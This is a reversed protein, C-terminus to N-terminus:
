KVQLMFKLMNLNSVSLGFSGQRRKVSHRYYTIPSLSIFYSNISSSVPVYPSIPCLISVPENVIEIHARRRKEQQLVLV